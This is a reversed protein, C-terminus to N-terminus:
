SSSKRAPPRSALVSATPLSHRHYAAHTREPWPLTDLDVTDERPGTNRVTDGDRWAMGRIERWPLGAAVATALDVLTREGEFRVVSDLEPILRLLTEPAFSAYHGGMTFHSTIGGARLANIIAGFDPAMFQFIMSFGIIDPSWRRSLDLLPGAARGFSEIRAEHGALRLSSALYGLGLNDQDQFGVLLV